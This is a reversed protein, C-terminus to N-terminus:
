MVKKAYNKYIKNIEKQLAHAKSLSSDIEEQMDKGKAEFYDLHNTVRDTVRKLHKIMGELYLAKLNKLLKNRYWLLIILLIASFFVVILAPMSNGGLSPVSMFAILLSLSISFLTVVINIITDVDQTKSIYNYENIKSILSHSEMLKDFVLTNEENRFSDQKKELANLDRTIDVMAKAIKRIKDIELKKKM